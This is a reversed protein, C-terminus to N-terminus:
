MGDQLNGRPEALGVSENMMRCVTQAKQRSGISGFVPVYSFGDLHCYWVPKHEDDYTQSVVYKKRESMYNGKSTYRAAAIM